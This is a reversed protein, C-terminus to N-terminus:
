LIAPIAGAPAGPAPGTGLGPSRGCIAAFTAAAWCVGWGVEGVLVGVPLDRAGNVQMQRYPSGKLWSFIAGSKQTRLRSPLILSPHSTTRVM